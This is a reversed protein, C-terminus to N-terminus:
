RLYLARVVRVGRGYQQQLRRWYAEADAKSRFPGVVFTGRGSIAVDFYYSQSVNRLPILFEVPFGSVASSGFVQRGQALLDNYGNIVRNANNVGAVSYGSGSLMRRLSAIQTRLSALQARFTAIRNNLTQDGGNSSGDGSPFGQKVEVRIIAYKWATGRTAADEALLQRIRANAEGLTRFSGKTVFRSPAQRQSSTVEYPWYKYSPASVWEIRPQAFATSGGCLSVVAALLLGRHRRLCEATRFVVAGETGLM